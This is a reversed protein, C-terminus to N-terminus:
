KLEGLCQRLSDKWGPIALSFTSRIKDTDLVSYAPRRAPTPYASTPVPHVTCTSGSLEKIAIAFDYWTATGSNCYHYVGTKQKLDSNLLHLIAAALDNAYTPSGLQDNVVNLTTKEKMLRLMTRVFNHGQAAYVWSTRIIITDACHEMALVEGKYKSAGYTNIPAIAHDEKYPATGQGDFVYDTSFHILTSGQAACAKALNATATANALYAAGPETEAKDVATYAACNICVDIHHQDFFANVADEQDTPLVARSAFIFQHHSLAAEQRLATGLQGNAGTILVSLSNDKM